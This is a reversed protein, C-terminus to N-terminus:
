PNLATYTPEPSPAQTMLPRGPMAPGASTGGGKRGGGHGKGPAIHADDDGGQGGGNGNGRGGGQGKGNGKGSGGKGNGNGKGNGHDGGDDKGGGQGKGDGAAGPTGALVNRCYKLVRDPTYGGAANELAQRREGSLDKGRLADRCASPAQRRWWAGDGAGPTASPRDGPTKGPTAPGTGGTSGDPSPRGPLGHPSPSVLPSPSAPATVSAAPRPAGGFPTPVIGSTVAYAVGGVMGSALVATLAFRASRGRRARRGDPARGGIRVLGADSVHAGARHGAGSRVAPAEERAARFAALAAAEGPLEASTPPPEATLAELTKALREAQDRAAADVTEPSEGRLLAEATARDLWTYQEDAM